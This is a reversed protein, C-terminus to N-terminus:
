DQSDTPKESNNDVVGFSHNGSIKGSNEYNEEILSVSQFPIMIHNVGGFSKRIEDDEPNIILQNARPVLLDKISVFYPHTLDLSKASIAIPKDKWKFHVRYISVTIRGGANSVGSQIWYIM